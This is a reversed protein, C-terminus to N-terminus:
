FMIHLSPIIQQVKGMIPVHPFFHWVEVLTDFTTKQYVLKTKKQKHFM